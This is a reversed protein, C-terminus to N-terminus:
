VAEIMVRSYGIKYIKKYLLIFDNKDELKNVLIIKYSGKIHYPKELM